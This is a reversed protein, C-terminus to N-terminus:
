PRLKLVVKPVNDFNPWMREITAPKMASRILEGKGM